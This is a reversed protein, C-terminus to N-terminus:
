SARRANRRAALEHRWRRRFRRHPDAERVEHLHAIGGEIAKRTQERLAWADDVGPWIPPLLEFYLREPRPIPTPGVGRVIPMVLDERVGARRMATGVPSALIDGPGVVVDLAHEVGVAAFPVIPVGHQHALRAFGSRRGWKLQYREGRDKMVERAGGPFVLVDDGREFLASLNAPTGDVVGFRNLFDRWVPVSFHAHDGLSHLFIGRRRYLESILWPADLLGTLTHNGVFLRPGHDPIRDLGLLVPSTLRRVPELLAVARDLHRM